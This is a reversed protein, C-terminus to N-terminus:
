FGFQRDHLGEKEEIDCKLRQELMSELIPRYAKAGAETGKGAKLILALKGVKIEAPIVGNAIDLFLDRRCGVAAKAIEPLIGDPGPANGNNIRRVSWELEDM